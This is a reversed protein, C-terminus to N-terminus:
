SQNGTIIFSNIELQAKATQREYEARQANVEALAMKQKAELLEIVSVAPALLKSLVPITAWIALLSVLFHQWLVLISADKALLSGSAFLTTVFLVTSFGALWLSKNYEDVWFNVVILVFVSFLIFCLTM